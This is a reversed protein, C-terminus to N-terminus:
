APVTIGSNPINRLQPSQITRDNSNVFSLSGYDCKREFRNGKGVSISFKNNSVSVIKVIDGPNVRNSIISPRRAQGNPAIEEFVGQAATFSASERGKSVPAATTGSQASCVFDIKGDADNDIGDRCEPVAPVTPSTCTPPTGGNTCNNVCQNGVRTQGAPCLPCVTGNLKKYVGPTSTLFCEDVANSPTGQCIAATCKQPM